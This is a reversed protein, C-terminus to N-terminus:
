EYVEKLWSMKVDGHRVDSVAEASGDGDGNLASVGFLYPTGEREGKECLSRAM